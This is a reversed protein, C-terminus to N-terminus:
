RRRLSLIFGGLDDIEDSRLHLDPMRQHPTQLFARLSLPTLGRTQAIADFSPAGNSVAVRVDPLAHCGACWIEALRRGAAIDGIEEAAPATLPTICLCALVVLGQVTGAAVGRTVQRSRCVAPDAATM